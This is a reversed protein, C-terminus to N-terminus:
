NKNKISQLLKIIESFGLFMTGSIATIVWCVVSVAIGMPAAIIIGAIIGVIYIACAIFTLVKAVDNTEPLSKSVFAYKKIQEYEEDTVEIAVKKFYRITQRESDLENEPYAEDYEESWEDNPAYVKEYLGQSVLLADRAQKEELRKQAFYDSLKPNM